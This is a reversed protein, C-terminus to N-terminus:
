RHGLVQVGVVDQLLTQTAERGGVPAGDDLLDQAGDDFQAPVPVAAAHELATDIVGGVVLLACEDEVVDVLVNM